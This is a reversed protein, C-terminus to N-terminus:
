VPPDSQPSGVACTRPHLRCRYVKTEKVGRYIKHEKVTGTLVGKGGPGVRSWTGTQWVLVDGAETRMKVLFEAHDAWHPHFVYIKEVTVPLEHLREDVNGIWNGEVHKMAENLLYVVNDTM